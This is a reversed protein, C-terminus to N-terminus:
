YRGYKKALSDVKEVLDTVSLRNPGCELLVYKDSALGKFIKESVPSLVVVLGFDPSPSTLLSVFENVKTCYRVSCGKRLVFTGLVKSSENESDTFILVRLKRGSPPEDM